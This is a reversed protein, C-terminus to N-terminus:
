HRGAWRRLAHFPGDLEAELNVARALPLGARSLSFADVNELTNVRINQGPLFCGRFGLERARKRLTDTVSGAPFCFAPREIGLERRIDDRSTRMEWEAEADTMEALLAHSYTHAGIEVGAAVLERAQDWTLMKDTPAAVRLAGALSALHREREERAMRGVRTKLASYAARRESPSSLPLTSGHDWPAAIEAEETHRCLYALRQSWPLDGRSLSGTVAFITAPVRHKELLPLAAEYNDRFGDDFTLVVSQQPIPRREEFCSLLESLPIVEFHRTVYALQDDFHEPPLGPMYGLDESAVRHGYLIIAGRRKRWRRGLRAMGTKVVVQSAASRLGEKLPRHPM